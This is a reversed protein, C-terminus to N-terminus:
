QTTSENSPIQKYLESLINLSQTVCNSNINAQQLKNIYKIKDNITPAKENLISSITNMEKNCNKSIFIDKWEIKYNQLHFLNSLINDLKKEWFLELDRFWNYVKNDNINIISRDAEWTVKFSLWHTYDTNFYLAAVIEPRNVLFERLQHLRTNKRENHNLYENRSKDFNYNGDYRVSTTAVEDIIIPKNFKKLREYTNWNKDYLIQIPSLWQRNWVAKWRNYFTFWVVDVYENWPYYDEFHYCDHRSQNCEILVASQSPNWKTPMDRHNVSFDFLINEENLWAVRSLTRVHIWAAKFKEPNSSRPYRWGNMEHMTRFIVHINKEKIKKFFSEYKSDFKWLVVDNASYMDPSITFHYIRNTWLKEVIRDISNLVDSEARPDFIFSVIPINVNYNKEIAEINEPTNNSSKLWFYYSQSLNITSFIFFWVFLAIKKRNYKYFNTLNM